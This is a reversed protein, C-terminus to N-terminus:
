DAPDVHFRAEANTGREGTATITYTGSAIPATYTTTVVGYPSAVHPSGTYTSGDPLTIVFTVVESPAAGVLTLDFGDDTSAGVLKADIHVASPPPMTLEQGEALHDADALGNERVIAAVSSHFQKAIKTLTDGRQVRYTTPAATTSTAATPARRPIKGTREPDGLLPRLADWEAIGCGDGRNVTVSVRKGGVTGTIRARQPGGYVEACLRPARHQKAIKTVMGKGVLACAPAAVRQVFGTGRAGGDCELTAESPVLATNVSGTSAEVALRASTGAVPTAGGPAAATGITVIITALPAVLPRWM